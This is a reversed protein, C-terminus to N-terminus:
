YKAKKGARAGLIFFLILLAFSICYDYFLRGTIISESFVGLIQQIFEFIRMSVYLNVSYFYQTLSGMIGEYSNFIMEHIFASVLFVFAPANLIMMITKINKGSLVVDKGIFYWLVYILIELLTGVIFITDSLTASFLFVFLIGVPLPTLGILLLIINHNLKKM